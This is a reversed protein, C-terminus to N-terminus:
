HHNLHKIDFHCSKDNCTEDVNELELTAHCIGQKRLEDKILKKLNDTKLDSVIHMTAYNKYGDISWIHIHHIDIVGNIKLLNKRIQDVSIGKPIKELFLDLIAKLNCCAQILIFLSVIISLIPDILKIDTFKILIAGILVIVWGLVDELMHLNVSKQNLSDGDKTYYAAFFNVIVGVIALVLMGNYNIGTPTIIRYIANYIIFCSGVFLIITTILSGIVSYRIYGYTYKNDAKRKSIKELFYSIGISIADGIDHIADSAIAISNTLSGGIFEFISFSLNLIFALLINKETKNKM